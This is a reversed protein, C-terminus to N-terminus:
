RSHRVLQGTPWALLQLLLLFGNSAGSSDAAEVAEAAVVTQESAGNLADARTPMVLLADAPGSMITATVQCSDSFHQGTRGKEASCRYGDLRAM